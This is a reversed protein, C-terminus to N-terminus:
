LHPVALPVAIHSSTNNILKAAQHGECDLYRRRVAVVGEALLQLEDQDTPLVGVDGQPDQLNVKASRNILGWEGEAKSLPKVFLGIVKM